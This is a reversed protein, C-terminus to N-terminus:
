IQCSNMIVYFIRIQLLFHPVFYLSYHEGLTELANDVAQSAITVAALIAYSLSKGLMNAIGCVIRAPNPFCALGWSAGACYPNAGLGDCMTNSYDNAYEWVHEAAVLAHGLNQQDRELEGLHEQNEAEDSDLNLIEAM